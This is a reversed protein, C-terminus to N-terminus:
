VYINKNRGWLQICPRPTASHPLPPPLPQQWRLSLPFGALCPCRAPSTPTATHVPFIVPGAVAIVTAPHNLKVFPEDSIHYEKWGSILNSVLTFLRGYSLEFIKSDWDQRPNDLMFPSFIRLNLKFCEVSLTNQCKKMQNM